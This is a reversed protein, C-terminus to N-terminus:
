DGEKVVLDSVKKSWDEESLSNEIEMSKIDETSLTEEIWVIEKVGNM